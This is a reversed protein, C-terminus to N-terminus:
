IKGLQKFKQRGLNSFTKKFIKKVKKIANKRLNESM